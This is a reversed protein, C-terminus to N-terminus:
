ALPFSTIGAADVLANDGTLRKLAIYGIALALSLVLVLIASRRHDAPDVHVPQCHAFITSMTPAEEGAAATRRFGPQPHLRADAAGAILDLVLRLTVPESALLTSVEAAYRDRWGRPYLALLWRAIMPQGPPTARDAGRGSHKCAARS